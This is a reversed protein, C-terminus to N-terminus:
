YYFRIGIRGMIGSMDFSREYIRDRGTNPDPVNYEWSPQSHHYDMEGFIESRRGLRFAAGFGIRWNFDFAGKLEGKDPNEFNRYHIILVEAGLGGNVYADVLPSVPFRATVFGMLPFDHLTTKARLENISYNAIGYINNYESVLKKDTYTNHFWDFSWGLSVGRDVFIGGEYGIIFGGDSASPSFHGLKIASSGSQAYALSVFILVILIVKKHM